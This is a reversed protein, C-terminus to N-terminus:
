ISESREPNLCAQVALRQAEDLEAGNQAAFFEEFLSFPPRNEIEAFGGFDYEANTRANDFVLSMINPYVARLKGLADYIEDEDTLTVHIYDECGIPGNSADAVLEALKGRIRRMDRLPILPLPTVSVDGKHKIEVLLACKNHSCESASYKLPSGAYRVHEAGARQPGHLHGLAVYDFTSILGASVADIRDVGGIIERESKSREPDAGGAIFQHTILVNRTSEDIDAKRIVWEFADQYSEIVGPAAPSVAPAAPLSAEPPASAPLSAEPLSAETPASAQSDEPPVAAPPFTGRFVADADRREIGGPNVSPMIIGDNTIYRRVDAPRIYPLMHFRVEGFEDALTVGRMKGDFVGYLHVGRESMIGSAFALREPSDHNGSIIIIAPGLAALATIFRDFVRVAEAPPTLKDYVDGAVVVAEPKHEKVYDLIQSLVYEQDELMPFADAVKGIHLDALHIFKM